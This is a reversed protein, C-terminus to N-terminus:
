CNGADLARHNAIQRQHWAYIGASQRSLWGDKAPPLTVLKAEAAIAPAVFMVRKDSEGNLKVKGRTLTLASM